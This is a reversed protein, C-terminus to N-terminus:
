VLDVVGPTLLTEEVAVASAMHVPVPAASLGVAGATLTVLLTGYLLLYSPLTKKSCSDKKTLSMEYVKCPPM